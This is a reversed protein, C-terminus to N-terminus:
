NNIPSGWFAMETLNIGTSGSWTETCRYRIYRAPSVEIDFEYEEGEAAYAMDESTGPGSTKGSPRYVDADLMLFWGDWNDVATAFPDDTGWIEFHKPSHLQYATGQRPWVKIRSLQATVGLDLGFYPNPPGGPVVYLVNDDPLIKGDWLVSIPDPLRSSGWEHLKYDPSQPFGKFFDSNLQIEFLPKVFSYITDTYNEYRDRVFAGVKVELTDMGRVSRKGSTEGTYFNDLSAFEGNEEEIILSVIINENEQNEWLVNIGGWGSILEITTSINYIPSDEPEIDVLLPESENQSRDVSILRATTNQSKGFGKLMVSNQLFSSRVEKQKGNPLTYQAKVYLFDDDDPIEYIIESGGPFNNVEPNKIKGPPIKDIPYQGIYGESCSVLFFLASLYILYKM